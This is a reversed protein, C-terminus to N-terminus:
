SIRKEAGTAAMAELRPALEWLNRIADKGPHRGFRDLLIAHWGAKRAANVDNHANDGIMLIEDPRVNFRREVAQFMRKDPKIVREDYSAVIEDVVDYLPVKKLAYELGLYMTNSLVALKYGNQRLKQLAPLTDEFAAVCDRSDELATRIRKKRAADLRVGCRDALKELAADVELLPEMCLVEDYCRVFADPDMATVGLEQKVMQPVTPTCTNRILTNWLDFVVVKIM